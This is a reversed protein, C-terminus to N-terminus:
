FFKTMTELEKREPRAMEVAGKGLAIVAVVHQSEPIGLESRLIDADRIGMILSDFGLEKAKLCLLMNQLGLDYAGWENGIENSPSGDREFGSRNAEFTTVVLAAANKSSNQNFEPLTKKSIEAVKEPGSIVYYRGTQSNKWSPAEQACRIIQEMEERSISVGEQFNRVSRRAEALTQLEM